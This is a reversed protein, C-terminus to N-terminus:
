EETLNDLAQQGLHQVLARQVRIPLQEAVFRMILELDYEEIWRGNDLWRAELVLYHHVIVEGLTPPSHRAQIALDLNHWNFRFRSEM